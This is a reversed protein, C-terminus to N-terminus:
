IETHKNLPQILIMSLLFEILIYAPMAFVREITTSCHVNFGWLSYIAALMIVLLFTMVFKNISVKPNVKAINHHLLAIFYFPAIFLFADKLFLFKLLTSHSFVFRSYFINSAYISGFYLATIMFLLILYPAFGKKHTVALIGGGTVIIALPYSNAFTLNIVMPNLNPTFFFVPGALTLVILIVELKVFKKGGYVAFAALVFLWPAIFLVWDFRQYPMIGYFFKPGVTGYYLFNIVFGFAFFFAVWRLADKFFAYDYLGLFLFYFGFLFFLFVGQSYHIVYSNLIILSFGGIFILLLFSKISIGKKIYTAIKGSYLWVLTLVLLLMLFLYLSANFYNKVTFTFVNDHNVFISLIGNKLEANLSKQANPLFNNNETLVTQRNATIVIYATQKKSSFNQFLVNVIGNQSKPLMGLFQIPSDAECGTIFVSSEVPVSVNGDQLLFQKGNLNSYQTISSIDPHLTCVGKGKIFYVLAKSNSFESVEFGDKIYFQKFTLGNEAIIGKLYSNIIDLDKQFQPEYYLFDGTKLDRGFEPYIGFLSLNQLIKEINSQSFDGDIHAFIVKNPFKKRVSELFKVDGSYQIGIIDSYQGLQYNNKNLNEVILIKKKSHISQSFHKLSKEMVQMFEKNSVNPINVYFGTFDIRPSESKERLAITNFFVPNIDYAYEFDFKNLRENKPAAYPNLLFLTSIKNNKIVNRIPLLSSGRGTSIKKYTIQIEPGANNSIILPLNNKDVYLSNITAIIRERDFDDGKPFSKYMKKLDQITFTNKGIFQSSFLDVRSFLPISNSSDFSESYKLDYANNVKELGIFVPGSTKSVLDSSPIGSVVLGNLIYENAPQDAKSLVSGSFLFISTIGIIVVILLLVFNRIKKM